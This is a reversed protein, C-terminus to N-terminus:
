ILMILQIGPRNSTDLQGHYIFVPKDGINTVNDILGRDSLDEARSILLDIDILGPTVLCLLFNGGCLYPAPCVYYDFNISNHFINEFVNKKERNYIM